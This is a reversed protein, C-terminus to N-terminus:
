LSKRIWRSKRWYHQQVFPDKATINPHKKLEVIVFEAEEKTFRRQQIANRTLLEDLYSRVIPFSHPEYCFQFECVNRCYPHPMIKIYSNQNMWTKRLSDSAPSQLPVGADTLIKNIEQIYSEEQPIFDWITEAKQNDVVGWEVACASSEIMTAMSDAVPIIMDDFHTNWYYIRGFSDLYYEVWYDPLESSCAFQVLPIQNWHEIYPEELSFDVQIALSLHDAPLPIIKGGWIKDFQRIQHILSQPAEPLTSIWIDIPDRKVYQIQTDLFRQAAPSLNLDSKSLFNERYNLPLIREKKTGMPKPHVM